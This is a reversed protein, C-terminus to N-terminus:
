VEQKLVSITTGKIQRIITETPRRLGSKSYNVFFEFLHIKHKEKFYDSLRLSTEAKFKSSNMLSFNSNLIFFDALASKLRVEESKVRVEESPVGRAAIHWKYM